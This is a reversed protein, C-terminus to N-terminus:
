RNRDLGAFHERGRQIVLALHEDVDQLALALPRLVVPAQAFEGDFKLRGRAAHWADTNLEFNIRVADKM